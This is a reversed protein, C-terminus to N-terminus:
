GLSDAWNFKHLSDRISKLQHLAVRMSIRSEPSEVACLLGVRAMSVLPSEELNIIQIKQDHPLLQPDIVQFLKDPFLSRVWKELVLEEGDIGVVQMPSKGTLLELLLVGFSYVDGKTSPRGGLGYEPPIYGVTGKLWESSTASIGDKEMILRALGFDGVKATMEADLLVNSPKLDCHVVPADCDHHLYDMASAIDIAIELREELSLGEHDDEEHRRRGRLWDELSGNGMFEYVLALFENNAFDCSSCSTILKVLNRHRVNRLAECEAIFSKSAGRVSLDLVKIAVATAITSGEKILAGTYVSGFSGRGILNESSLNNTARLIEDYSIWPHSTKISNTTDSIKAFFNKRKVFFLVAFVILCLAFISVVLIIVTYAAKWNKGSSSTKCSSNGTCLMPNGELLAESSNKFVGYEPVAGELNNFSLNLFQLAHLDALDNPISGSIHNSSLDLKQLGSLKGISDPILGTLSNNALFLVQLSRCSGVSLPINGSILNNSIDISIVNVMRGIELPLSGSLYNNSLNLLSTLSTLSFIERPISGNLRNGSLDLYLLSEFNGFSSPIGGELDNGYMELKSLKRLEALGVPIRGTIRNGALGLMQLNILQSINQPIEGSIYNNSMNLLQLAKLRGISEPISGRIKSEGMYLKTLVSSLNGVSAPIVGDFSNGDFALFQLKTSNTLYTVFQLGDYTFLLNYGINYMVLESLKELGPPITGRLFNHSMRLSQIRTLNHLSPPIKGTFENFCVHFVLLNPLRFGVDAPIEGHLNNSAMAFTVLSSLNYLSPPVMGEINNISLQLHQLKKLRSLGDPMSGSISNTGLDIYTLSSINTISLPIPGTLQNQALKMIQLNRLRQLEPPIQGSFKNGSLDLTTLDTCNTISNPIQGNFFNSSVNLLQLQSLRGIQDPLFGIFQNSQLLLFRLFTLNGLSPTLIGSLTLGSLDLGTVRNEPKDCFVGSWTCLSTSNADGNTTSIWSSLANSPDSTILAKLSLLAQEDTLLSSPSSSSTPLVLLLLAM